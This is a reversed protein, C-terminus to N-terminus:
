NTFSFSQLSTTHAKLLYGQGSGLGISLLPGQGLCSGSSGQGPLVGGEKSKPSSSGKSGYSSGCLLSGTSSEPPSPLSPSPDGNVSAIIKGLGELITDSL